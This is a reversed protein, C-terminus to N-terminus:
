NENGLPWFCRLAPFQDITASYAKSYGGDNPYKSRDSVKSGIFFYMNQKSHVKTASANIAEQWCSPVVSTISGLLSDGAYM